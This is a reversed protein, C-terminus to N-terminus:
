PLLLDDKGSPRSPGIRLTAPQIPQAQAVPSGAIVEYDGPELTKQITATQLPDVPGVRERVDDGELTITHQEETQNSITLVIPGAGLRRPSVTVKDDQVVGTLQVPVPPRPENEFDDEGCGAIALVFFAAGLLPWSHKRGM